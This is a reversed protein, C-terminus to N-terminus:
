KRGFLITAIGGNLPLRYTQKFGVEKLYGEIEVPDIFNQISQCLYQYANENRTMVKGLHPLVHRLYVKHGFRLLRNNPQTLELIGFCGGPELVRFVEKICLKPDRVNRLGYAITVASVSEKPLPIDQADARLFTLHHHEMSLSESKKKAQSLMEECFDLLYAQCRLPMKTLYTFTIEGTGCCLDLLTRPSEEESIVRVLEANWRKHLQFSLVGNTRDYREAISGFLSQITKPDQKNYTM